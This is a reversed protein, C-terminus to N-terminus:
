VEILIRADTAEVAPARQIQQLVIQCLAKLNLAEVFVIVDPRGWCAHASKVGEIEAIDNGAEEVKGPTAYVFVYAQTAM